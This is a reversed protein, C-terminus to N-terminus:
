GIAARKIRSLSVNTIGLFSALHYDPLRSVIHPYTDSFLKLRETASLLLLDHERQFKQEVLVEAFPLAFEGWQGASQLLQYLNPFPCELVTTAEIAAINFLVGQTRDKPAVPWITQGEAFFAKNFEKGEIDLYFLRILGRHIYFLKNWSEGVSLLFSKRGYTRKHVRDLLPSLEDQELDVHDFVRKRFTELLQTAHIENKLPM